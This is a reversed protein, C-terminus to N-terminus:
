PLTNNDSTPDPLLTEVAGQLGGTVKNVSSGLTSTGQSSSDGTKSLGPLPLGTSPAATTPAPAQPGNAAGQPATKATGLVDQLAQRDVTVPHSNDLPAGALSSLRRQVEASALFMPPVALDPLGEACTDCLGRAQQDINSLAVAADALDDQSDAPATRAIQQLQHLSQAAFERVALISAPDQNEQFSAMLLRSGEEAQGTFEDITAPVRPQAAPADSALLGSAEALRQQAQGLLDHGKGAPNFTLDTEAHEIGRKIPYLAEGPLAHEAAAAMSVGGGLLVVASAAAVLRKERRSRPRTPLVLNANGPKLVAAAEAMLRERLEAAFDPRLVPSAVDRLATVVGTLEELEPHAGPTATGDIVSAFQEARRHASFVSTM